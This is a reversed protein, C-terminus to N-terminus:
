PAGVCRRRGAQGFVAAVGCGQRITGRVDVQDGPGFGRGVNRLRLCESGGVGIIGVLNHTAEVIRSAGVGAVEGAYRTEVSPPVVKVRTVVAATSAGKVIGKAVGNNQVVLWGAGPKGDPEVAIRPQVKPPNM